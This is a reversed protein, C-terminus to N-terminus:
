RPNLDLEFSVLRDPITHQNRKAHMILAQRSNYSAGCDCTHKVGCVREHRLNSVLYM